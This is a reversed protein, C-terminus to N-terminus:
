VLIQACFHASPSKFYVKTIRSVELDMGQVGDSAALSTLTLDSSSHSLGCSERHMLRRCRILGLNCLFSTYLPLICFKQHNFGRKKAFAVM